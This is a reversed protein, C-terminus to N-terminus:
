ARSARATGAEKEFIPLVRILGILSTCLVFDLLLVGRSFGFGAGLLLFAVAALSGVTAARFLKWPDQQYGKPDYLGALAFGLLKAGVLFPFSSQFYAFERAFEDPSWRILHAGYYALIVAVTDLVMLLVPRARNWFLTREFQVEPDAWHALRPSLSVRLLRLGFILMVLLLTGAVLNAIRRDTAQLAFAVGGGLASLAWLLYVADREPLGLAVLRHSTHDRGGQSVPRGEMMRVATVLTTDLIPILLLFAPVAIVAVIGRGGGPAPSLALAALVIGIFLAGSDGMFIRAPPHNYLLFGGTAGALAFALIALTLTNDMVFIGGLVAAGIMAVGGALGDMNDLLNLANTIGVFWFISIALDFTFMGTLRLMVGSGILILAAMVEAILKPAPGMPRFDDTLGVGFMILGAVLFADSSSWPHLGPIVERALTDPGALVLLGIVGSLTFALFIAVGGVAPTPDRHWRDERVDAVVRHRIALRRVLPTLVASLVFALLPALVLPVWLNM